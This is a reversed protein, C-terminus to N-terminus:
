TLEKVPSFSKRHEITIGYAKLADLHEKTGYGMHKEFRYQPYKVGLAEMYRDREVKAIISSAAISISREDGKILSTQSIPIDIKMADVLLHEPVYTLGKVALKMGKKTAEYINLEDIENSSIMSVSYSIAHEKIYQYFAERKSKSLKKSDNLGLLYFDKPLIVAACVVPGALPGRGVEDIGAIYKCGKDWLQNEFAKMSLFSELAEQEKNKMTEYKKLLRQVGKREDQVIGDLWEASIEETHHFLKDEIEKITYM